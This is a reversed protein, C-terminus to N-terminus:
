SYLISDLNESLNDVSVDKGVFHFDDLHEIKPFDISTNQQLM